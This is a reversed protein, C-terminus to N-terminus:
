TQGWTLWGVGVSILAVGAFQPLGIPDGYVWAVVLLAPFFLASLPFSRSLPHRRHVFGWVLMRLGNLGAVAAVSLLVGFRSVEGHRDAIEKLLIVGILQLGVAGSMWLLADLRVARGPTSAASM